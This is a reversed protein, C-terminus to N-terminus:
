KHVEAVNDDSPVAFDRTEILTRFIHEGQVERMKEEYQIRLYECVFKPNITIIELIKHWLQFLQSGVQNLDQMLQFSIQYPDNLNARQSFPILSGSKRRTAFKSVSEGPLEKSLKSKFKDNNKLIPIATVKKIEHMSDDNSESINLSADDDSQRIAEEEM